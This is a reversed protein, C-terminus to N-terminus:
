GLQRAILPGLRNAMPLPLRRWADVFLRYKPNNPNVDPFHRQKVLHYQYNLPEPEFGWYCKYDFAGTGAKSRGFDFHKVGREVSRCMLQWYLLDYAHLGRAAPVAGGYYPLVEDKFFFSLLVAVHGGGASVASFDVIDAFEDVVAQLFRPPFVPTGLDRLSIAYTRYFAEPEIKALYVTENGLSKRIDARKKRPVRRLNDAEVPSLERRFGAYLSAKTPWGALAPQRSRLELYDVGLREALEAAAAALADCASQDAALIGGYVFFGTSILAHGFLATKVEILPLIGRLQEGDWAALYHSPYGYAREIVRRWGNRHFLTAEPHTAVFAEWAAEDTTELPRVMM